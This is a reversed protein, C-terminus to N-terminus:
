PNIKKILDINTFVKYKTQLLFDPDHSWIGDAKILNCVALYPIDKSDETLNKSNDMFEKYDEKPIILIHEFIISLLLEFEELGLGTKNKIYDQYKDIERLVFEPSTFDFDESLLIDRTTGSKILAAIIRNADVVIKM